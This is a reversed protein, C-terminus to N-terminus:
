RVAGAESLPAIRVTLFITLRQKTRTFSKSRFATGLIPMRALGPVSNNSGQTVDYDLGGIVATGGDAVVVTTEVSRTNITPIVAGGVGGFTTVGSVSSVEPKVQLVVGLGPVVHPTMRLTIGIDKYAFGSVQVVAQQASFTYQPIPYQQGLSVISEVGDVGMLQPVALTRSNSHADLAKLVGALQSLSLAGSFGTGNGGASWQLNSLTVGLTALSSLDVGREADTAMDTEIFRCQVWVQKPVVSALAVVREIRGVVDPLDRVMLGNGVGHIVGVPSLLGAVSEAVKDRDAAGVPVVVEFLTKQAVVVLGEKLTFSYGLPDLAARFLEQWDGGNWVVTVKGALSGPVVISLGHAKAVDRLVAKVDDQPIDLLEPVAFLPHFAIVAALVFAFVTSKM